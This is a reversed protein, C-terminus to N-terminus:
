FKFNNNTHCRKCNAFDEGFAKQNNHCSACSLGSKTAKHMAVTPASMNGQSSAHCSKCDLSKHKSHNFNGAITQPPPSIDNNGGVQHCQFCKSTTFNGGGKMPSHCQFCTSHATQGNPINFTIGKGGSKHCVACDTKTHNAHDFKIGFSKVNAVEQHCRRCDSFQNAGFAKQGNHCTTCSNTEGSHMSVNIVSMKNDSSPNHCSQCNLGNHKSHNFNFGITKVTDTFHTPTGEQHCTSCSGINKEGVIKDSTHCQFCTAHANSGNPVTMGDGSNKHCTSCNTEKFHASHNFQVDFSQIKPFAKVESSGSKTHCTLCIPHSADKFQQTHCGACREHLALQPKSSEDKRDHCLLCPITKHRGEHHKFTSFDIGEMTDATTAAEPFLPQYPDQTEITIKKSESCSSFIYGLMLCLFSLVVIERLRKTSNWKGPKKETQETM